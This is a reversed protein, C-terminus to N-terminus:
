GDLSAVYKCAEDLGEHRGVYIGANHRSIAIARKSQADDLCTNDGKVM